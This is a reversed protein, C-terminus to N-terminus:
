AGIAWTCITSLIGINCLMRKFGTIMNDVAGSILPVSGSLFMWLLILAAMAMVVEAVIVLVDGAVAKRGLTEVVMFSGQIYITRRM